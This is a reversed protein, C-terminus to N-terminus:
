VVSKINHEITFNEFIKRITKDQMIGRNNDYNNQQDSLWCGLNRIDEDEDLESPIKNNEIIYYKLIGLITMWDSDEKSLFYDENNRIFEELKEKINANQMIGENNVVYKIYKSIWSDINLKIQSHIDINYHASSPIIKNYKTIFDEAIKFNNLWIEEPSLFYEKYKEIFEEWLKKINEDKVIQQNYNNPQNYNNQQDLLWKGLESIEIDLDLELPIKNNKIIYDEVLKLKNIWNLEIDKNSIFFDNMNKIFKEWLKRINEDTMIDENNIYYRHQESIWNDIDKQGQSLIDTFSDDLTLLIKNYNNIFDEVLKLNNIWIEESSLFYKKYKEIFDEWLLRINKDNMLEKNNKYNKLQNLLWQGLKKIEKNKYLESPRKNNEIIYNDVLKLKNLWIEEPLLFYEKYKEIFEKWKKRINEEKMIQENNKYNNQQKTIWQGLMKIDKNKDYSSPKKKNKIIYDEILKLKNNLIEENSLFYEKYKEIFEGWANKINEDQMNQENNQYNNQQVLIWQNLIQIHRNKDYSSPIKKNKIIYDEVLKLNDNWNKSM